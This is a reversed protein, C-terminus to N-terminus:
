MPPPCLIIRKDTRAPMRELMSRRAAVAV